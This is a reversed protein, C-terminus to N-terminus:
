PSVKRLRYAANLPEQLESASRGNHYFCGDDWNGNQEIRARFLEVLAELEAIRAFALDLTEIDRRWVFVPTAKESFAQMIKRTTQLREKIDDTM